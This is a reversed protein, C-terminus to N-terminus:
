LPENGDSEDARQRKVWEKWPGPPRGRRRREVGHRILIKRVCEATVGFVKALERLSFGRQYQNVILEHRLNDKRM